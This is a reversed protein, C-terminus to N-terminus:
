NHSTDPWHPAPCDKAWLIYDLTPPKAGNERLRTLCQGRHNQSHMVVQTLGQAVTPQSQLFPLEFTRGLGPESLSELYAMQEQSSTRFLRILEDISDPVQSERVKDFPRDLFRALFFRQVTVIHNLTKM